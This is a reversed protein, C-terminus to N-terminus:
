VDSRQEKEERVAKRRFRMLKKIRVERARRLFVFGASKLNKGIKGTGADQLPTVKLSSQLRSSSPM